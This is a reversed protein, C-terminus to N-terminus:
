FALKYSDTNNYTVFAYSLLTKKILFCERSQYKQLTNKNTWLRKFTSKQSEVAKKSVTINLTNSILSYTYKGNVSCKNPMLVM